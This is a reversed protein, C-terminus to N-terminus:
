FVFSADALGAQTVEPRQKNCQVPVDTATPWGGSPCLYQKDKDLLHSVGIQAVSLGLRRCCFVNLLIHQCYSSSSGGSFKPVAAM